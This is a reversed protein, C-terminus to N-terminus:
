GFWSVSGASKGNLDNDGCLYFKVLSSHVHSGTDFYFLLSIRISHTRSDFLLNYNYQDHKTVEVSRFFLGLFYYISM